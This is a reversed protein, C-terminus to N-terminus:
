LMFKVGTSPSCFYKQRLIAKPFQVVCPQLVTEVVDDVVVIAVVVAAAPVVAVVAVLVVLPVCLDARRKRWQRCHRLQLQGREQWVGQDNFFTLFDDFLWRFNAFLKDVIALFELLNTLFITLVEGFIENFLCLIVMHWIIDGNGTTTTSSRRPSASTSRRMASPTGAAPSGWAWRFILCQCYIYHGFCFLAQNYSYHPDSKGKNVVVVVVWSVKQEYAFRLMRNHCLLLSGKRAFNYKTVGSLTCIRDAKSQVLSIICLDEGLLVWHWHLNVNLTALVLLSFIALCCNIKAARDATETARRSKTSRRRTRPPPASTARGAAPRRWTGQFLPPRWPDVPACKHIFLARQSSWM